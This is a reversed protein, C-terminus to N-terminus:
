NNTKYQAIAGDIVNDSSDVLSSFVADKIEDYHKNKNKICEKKIVSRIRWAQLFSLRKRGKHLEEKKCNQYLKVLVMIIQIIVMITGPDFESGAKMKVRNNIISVLDQEM